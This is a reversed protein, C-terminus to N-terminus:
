SRGVRVQGGAPTLKLANGVLNELVQDLRDRDAWVAVAPPDDITLGVRADTALAQETEAMDTLIAAVDVRARRLKMTGADNRAIDLLDDILRSM